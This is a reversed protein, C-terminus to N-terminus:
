QISSDPDRIVKIEFVCPREEWRASSVYMICITMIVHKRSSEGDETASNTFDERPFTQGKRFGWNLKHLLNCLQCYIIWNNRVRKSKFVTQGDLCQRFCCDSPTVSLTLVHRASM